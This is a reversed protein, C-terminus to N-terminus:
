SRSGSTGGRESEEIGTGNGTRIVDGGWETREVFDSEWGAATKFGPRTFWIGETEKGGAGVEIGRIFAYLIGGFRDEYEDASRIDLLRMIALSYVRAQLSYNKKVHDDLAARNFAPLCDSKWDLLYIKGQHEFVLDILGQLFGRVAQYPPGNDSNEGAAGRRLLPHSGEPIPYSFFMEPRHREGSAIGGPMDLKAGGEISAALLPTKIANYVLRLTEDSFTESFGHRRLVAAARQRVKEDAAWDDFCRERTEEAPTVELLAHLMIGTERGPPLVVQGPTEEMDPSFAELWGSGAPGGAVEAAVEEDRRAAGDDTDAAPAQWTKSRSMRTYSTLLVGRHAPKINEVEKARSPPLELLGAEPWGEVTIEVKADGPLRKSCDVDRLVYRDGSELRGSERLRDLQKQLETYLRGLRGYGYCGPANEGEPAPGFYPLYLRSRARTLAVYILRQNEEDIEQEVAAKIKGFAEGIHLCRRGDRHYINMKIDGDPPNGFGGGIFVVEAELGKAKHMTLIQVAQRDTELRQIDGEKGEPLKRGEIQAKLSRTLEGLTVPRAHAQAMLLEFLHLYNTLAREDGEFILRRVLGSESIITEFLKSWAQDDALRKWDHLMTAFPHSEGAEKWAPLESLPIGFFPTLWAALRVAPDTPEDIACLLRYVDGAQTTQFLGEQKYYAHPIGFRRLVEGIMYGEAASRTLIYIDSLKIPEPAGDGSGTFLGKNEDLLRNIEEGIFRAVGKKVADANLKESGGQLHLLHVPVAERGNESAARSRDGCEVPESYSNLGSFFAEGESDAATLIENVAEILVETSRFNYKLPLREAQCDQILYSKAQEYTHVDAGRFSYIAQKPDGIIYLFHEATGEVFIRRFIEWQVPDTDQFEDVLAFKWRKRLADILGGAGPGKLAELVGLLMDDYDILGLSRKRASLRGQVRPLLKYVFFSTDDAALEFIGDLKGCLEVIIKPAGDMGAMQCLHNFRSGEQKNIKIEKGAWEFLEEADQLRNKPEFEAKAEFLSSIIKEFGRYTGQDTFFSRGAEKLLDLEPLSNLEKYFTEPDFVPTVPCREPAGERHCRYLFQELQLLSKGEGIWRRLAEGLGTQEVLARRVEERFAFGFMEMGDAQEQEFLRGGLFAQESLVRNCFGHITSIQAGDFRFLAERLRSRIVDDIKWYAGPDENPALDGSQDCLRRILMRVRERLERTAADTFTVVLIEEIRAEGRILIDLVLHELTYTKGTGASAEIVAHGKGPELQRLIEPRRYYATNM